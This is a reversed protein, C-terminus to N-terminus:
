KAKCVKLPLPVSLPCMFSLLPHSLILNLIKSSMGRTTTAFHYPGLHCLFSLLHPFEAQPLWGRLPLVRPLGWECSCMSTLGVLYFSAPGDAQLVPVTLIGALPSAPGMSGMVCLLQLKRGM